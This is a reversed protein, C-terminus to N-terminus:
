NWVTGESRSAMAAAYTGEEVAEPACYEGDDNGARVALALAWFHDAHGAEDREAAIRVKGGSGVIREPKALDNQITLDAPIEIAKATMEALLDIAMIETVKATAGKRGIELLRDTIPETSAFNVGEVLDGFERYLYDFLGVGMGTADVCARNFKPMRCVQAIRDVQDPIPMNQIRLIAITRRLAGIREFVWIVTFDRTRAVDVGVDLRGEARHMRALSAATWDNEDIPIGEREAMSILTNSLLQMNEDAFQCEYNQLYSRKDVARDYSAEPTLEKRTRLDYIKRGQKWAESRTVRSVLFGGRSTFPTGDNPGPGSCLRYFMNHKGNGTSAIRCLFDPNSSLIPEAADWIAASDAHFAFEDLILDGSFGRATRPNAALVKIRGTKLIGDKPDKITIRVEMRMNEYKIDESLDEEDWVVNADGVALAENANKKALGLKDCVEACKQVFEAGNDRSNSLVTVLRGPRTLLRNIAWNALTFSKGIQRSWHLVLVGSTIDDFVAQQYPLFNIIAQPPLTSVVARARYVTGDAKTHTTQPTPAISEAIAKTERREPTNM